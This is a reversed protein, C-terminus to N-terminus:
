VVPHTLGKAALPAEAAAPVGGDVAQPCAAGESRGGGGAPLRGPSRARRVGADGLVPAEVWAGAPPRLLFHRNWSPTPVWARALFSRGSRPNGTKAGRGAELELPVGPQGRATSRRLQGQCRQRSHFSIPPPGVYEWRDEKKAKESWSAKERQTLAAEFASASNFKKSEM